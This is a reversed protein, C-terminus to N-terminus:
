KEEGQHKRRCCQGRLCGECREGSEGCVKYNGGTIRLTHGNVLADAIKHRADNYISQVTTRAISMTTGAEEQTLGLLDILRITEYEEVTMLVTEDSGKEFPCFTDHLPLSCVKRCKVPRAM